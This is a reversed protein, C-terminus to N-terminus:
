VPGARDFTRPTVVGTTKSMIQRLNKPIIQRLEDPDGGSKRCLKPCTRRLDHAGFREIGIKKSSQEVVSWVAWESLSDRNVKGLAAAPRRRHRGRADLRQHGAQGLDPIAVPRIRRGKGEFDALV